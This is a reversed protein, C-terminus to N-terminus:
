TPQCHCCLGQHSRSVQQRLGNIQKVMIDLGFLKERCAENVTKLKQNEIELICIKESKRELTNEHNLRIQLEQALKIQLNENQSNTALAKLQLAHTKDHEQRLQFKLSKLDKELSICATSQQTLQERLKDSYHREKDVILSSVGSAHCSAHCCKVVCCLLKSTCASACPCTHSLGTLKCCQHHGQCVEKKDKPVANKPMNRISIETQVMLKQM